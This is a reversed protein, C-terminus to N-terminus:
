RRVTVTDGNVDRDLGGKGTRRREEVMERIHARLNMMGRHLLSKVAGETRGLQGAIEVLSMEGVFRYFVAQAQVEPLTTLAQRVAAQVQKRAVIEEPLPGPDEIREFVSLLEGVEPTDPLTEVHGTRRYHDVALHEVVTHLWPYLSASSLPDLRFVNQVARLFAESALDHADDEHGVKVLALKYLRSYYRRHLVEL